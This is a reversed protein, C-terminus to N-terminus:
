FITYGFMVSLNRYESSWSSYTKLFHRPTHYRIEMSLKKNYKFGAGLAFNDGVELKRIAYLRGDPRLHNFYSNIPFDKLYLANAYIKLNNGAHFYYRFGLPIELSRYDVIAILNGGAVLNTKWIDEWKQYRYTPEFLISWQNAYFPLIYEIEIGLRFNMNAPFQNEGYTAVGQYLDKIFLNSTNLGPRFSIHFVDKGKKEVFNISESGMCDNNLVFLRTLDKKSYNLRAIENRRLEMCHLDSFLQQKFLDNKKVERNGALYYKFVLQKIEQGDISYFFRTLNDQVYEYLSARGEILVLLFVIEDNFEPNPNKSLNELENLSRDMAVNARIYKLRNYIGFESVTTIDANLIESDDFIKYEFETPNSRWGVDRILCEVRNDRDDIFYGNKFLVQSYSNMAFLLLIFLPRTPKNM